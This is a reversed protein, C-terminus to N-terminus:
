IASKRSFFPKLSSTVEEWEKFIDKKQISPKKEYPRLIKAIRFNKNVKGGNKKITEVKEPEINFKEAIEFVTFTGLFENNNDYLNYEDIM